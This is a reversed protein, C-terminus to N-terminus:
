PNPEGRSDHMREGDTIPWGLAEHWPRSFHLKWLETTTLDLAGLESWTNDAHLLFARAQKRAGAAFSERPAVQLVSFALGDPLFGLFSTTVDDGLAPEEEPVEVPCRVERRGVARGDRDFRAVRITQPPGGQSFRGFVDVCVLEVGDPTARLEGGCPLTLPPGSERYLRNGVVARTEGAFALALDNDEDLAVWAGEQRREVKVKDPRGHGGSEALLRFPVSRSTRLWPTVTRNHM